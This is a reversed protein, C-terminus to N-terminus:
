CWSRKLKTRVVTTFLAHPSLSVAVLLRGVTVTQLVTESGNGVSLVAVLRGQLLLKKCAAPTGGSRCLLVLEHCMAVRGGAV